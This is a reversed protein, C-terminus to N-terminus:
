QAPFSDTIDDWLVSKAQGKDVKDVPEAALQKMCEESKASERADREIAADIERWMWPRGM